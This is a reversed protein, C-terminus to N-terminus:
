QQGHVKPKWERALREAEAIEQPNLKRTLAELEQAYGERDRDAAHATALELWMHAQVDDRAVGEGNEYMFGLDFQADPYGQESAKRYWGVAAARDRQVGRGHRYLDGLQFQAKAFGQEAAKRLWRAAQSDDSKVDFAYLYMLGLNFQGEASGQDAAKHYWLMAEAADRPLGQGHEYRQGLEVQARLDGQEARARLAQLSEAANDASSNAAAKGTRVEASAPPSPRIHGGTSILCITLGNFALTGAGIGFAAWLSAIRGGGSKHQEISSGQLAKACKVTLLLITADLVLTMYGWPLLSVLLMVVGTVVLGVLVTLAAIMTGEGQRLYNIAMLISGGLPQGFFTAVWIARYDFLASTRAPRGADILAEDSRDPIASEAPFVYGCDCHLAGAPNILKCKPCEM